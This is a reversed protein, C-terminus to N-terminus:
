TMELKEEMSDAISRLQNIVYGECGGTYGNDNSWYEILNELSTQRLFGRIINEVEEEPINSGKNRANGIGYGIAGFLLASFLGKQDM